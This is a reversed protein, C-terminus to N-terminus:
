NIRLLSLTASNATPMVLTFTGATVTQQGGLSFIAVTRGTSSTRGATNYAIAGIASVTVTTWTVDAWQTVATDLGPITPTVNTMATGGSSYNTGSSEDTGVNSTSPSGGGPTGVNTQTAGYSGSNVLLMKFTDGAITVTQTASGTAAISLTLTNSSGVTAVVTNAAINTGSVAKGVTVDTLSSVATVSTTSNLTVTPTVAADHCHISQMIEKKWTDCIASTVAM